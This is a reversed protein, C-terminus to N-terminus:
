NWVECLGGKCVSKLRHITKLKLSTHKGDKESTKYECDLKPWDVAIDPDNWPIGGEGSPDYIDTCKYVSEATDSLVFFGQAFGVPVFFMNEERFAVDCWGM